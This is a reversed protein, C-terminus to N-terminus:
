DTSSRYGRNSTAPGSTSLTQTAPGSSSGSSGSSSAAEEQHQAGRRGGRRAYRHYGRSRGYRRGGYGGQYINIRFGGINFQAHAATIGTAAVTVPTLLCALLIAKLSFLGALKGWTM